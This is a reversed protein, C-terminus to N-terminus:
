TTSGHLVDPRAVAPAGPRRRLEEAPGRAPLARDPQRGHQHEAIRVRDHEHLLRRGDALATIVLATILGMRSLPLTVHLFTRVPESVSTARRRSCASTSATSRPSCRSSSTRCIATPSPGRRGHVLEGVALLAARHRLHRAVQERLRRGAAPQGLRADPHHLQDVLARPDAGPDARPPQGALRATYYAVPYGIAVCIVLAWFSYIATRVWVEHYVGSTHVLGVVTASRRRVALRAPEVGPDARQLHQDARQVRGGHGRLVARPVARDALVHRAPGAGAVAAPDRPRPRFEQEPVPRSGPGTPRGSRRPARASRTSPTTGPRLRQARVVSNSLNKPIYGQDILYKASLKNLPPQYGNWGFNQLGIKNDLLDNIMM